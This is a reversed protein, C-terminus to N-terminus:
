TAGEKKPAEVQAMLSRIRHLMMRARLACASAHMPDAIKPAVVHPPLAEIAQQCEALAIVILDDITATQSRFRALADGDPTGPAWPNPPEVAPPCHVCRTVACAESGGWRPWAPWPTGCGQCKLIVAPM